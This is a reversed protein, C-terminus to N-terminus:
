SGKVNKAPTQIQMRPAERICTDVDKGQAFCVFGSGKSRGTTPDYVVRAFRIPGFQSFHEELDEDNCNFPLNRIFISTDNTDRKVPEEDLLDDDNEEDIDEMSEDDDNDDDMHGAIHEEDDVDEEVHGDNKTSKDDKGEDKAKEWIDRDVAWDVALTRWDVDKGNM